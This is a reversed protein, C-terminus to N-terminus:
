TSTYGQDNLLLALRHAYTHHALAHARGAEAVQRRREPADLYERALAAAEDPSRYWACHEGGRALEEIGEVYDGLFFGGCGMVKWMRNSAAGLARAEAPHASAGLSIAAGRVVEAFAKGRLAGGCVPLGHPNLEWGPGYIHLDGVASVARLVEHREVYQGSGIFAVDCHFRPRACPTPRDLWPDVAQPMYRVVDAGARHYADVQGPVTLYLVETLRALRLARELPPEALDFFWFASRRGHLIARLSEEGLALAPITVLVLDPAFGEVRRRALSPGLRGFRTRWWPANIQRCAHGLSRVARAIATETKYTGGAGIVAVRM